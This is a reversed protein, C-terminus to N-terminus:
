FQYLINIAEGLSVELKVVWSRGAEWAAGIKSKALAVTLCFM